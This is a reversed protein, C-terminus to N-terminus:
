SLMFTAWDRMMKQLFFFASSSSSSAFASRRLYFSLSIFEDDVLVYGVIQLCLELLRLLFELDCCLLDDTLQSSGMSRVLVGRLAGCGINWIEYVQTCLWLRGKEDFVFLPLM